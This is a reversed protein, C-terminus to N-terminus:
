DRVIEADSKSSVEFGAPVKIKKAKKREFQSGALKSAYDEPDLVLRLFCNVQLHNATRDFNEKQKIQGHLDMVLRFYDMRVKEEKELEAFFKFTAEYRDMGAKAWSHTRINALTDLTRIQSEDRSIDGGRFCHCEYSRKCDIERGQINRGYNVLIQQGKEIPVQAFVSGSSPWTAANPLCAHNMLSKLTFVEGTDPKRPNSIVNEKFRGILSACIEQNWFQDEQLNLESSVQYFEKDHPEQYRNSIYLGFEPWDEYSEYSEESFRPHRARIVKKVFEAEAELKSPSVSHWVPENIITEGAALHKNAILSRGFFESQKINIPSAALYESILYNWHINASRRIM